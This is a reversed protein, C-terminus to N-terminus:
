TEESFLSLFRNEIGGSLLNSQIILDHMKDSSTEKADKKSDKDSEKEDKVKILKYATMGVFWSLSRSFQDFFTKLRDKGDAGFSTVKESHSKMLTNFGSIESLLDLSSHCVVPLLSPKLKFVGFTQIYLTV